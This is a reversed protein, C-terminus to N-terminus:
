ERQLRSYIKYLNELLFTLLGPYRCLAYSSHGVQNVAEILSLEDDPAKRLEEIM